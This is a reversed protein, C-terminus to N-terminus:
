SDLLLLYHLPAIKLSPTIWQEKLIMLSIDLIGKPGLRQKALRSVSSIGRNSLGNLDCCTWFFSSGKDSWMLLEAM